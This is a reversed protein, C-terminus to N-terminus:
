NDAVRRNKARELAAIIKHLPGSGLGMAAGTLVVGVKGALLATTQQEGGLIADILAFVNLNAALAVSIGFVLGLVKALNKVWITRLKAASIAPAAWYSPDDPRLRWLAARLRLREGGTPPTDSGFARLTYHLQSQLKAARRNWFAAGDLKAEFVDYIGKVIELLREIVLSLFISGTLLLLAGDTGQALASGTGM